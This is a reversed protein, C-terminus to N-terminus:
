GGSDPPAPTALTRARENACGAVGLLAILPFGIRSIIASSRANTM